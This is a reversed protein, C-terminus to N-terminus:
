ANKYFGQQDPSHAEGDVQNPKEAAPVAYFELIIFGSTGGFYSGLSKVQQRWEIPKSLRSSSALEWFTEVMQDTTGTFSIKARLIRVEGPTDMTWNFGTLALKNKLFVDEVGRQIDLKLSSGDVYFYEKSASLKQDISALTDRFKEESNKLYEAKKLLLSKSKLDAIQSGQWALVPLLVLKVALLFLVILLLNRQSILSTM